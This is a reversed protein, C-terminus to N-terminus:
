GQYSAWDLHLDKGRSSVVLGVPIFGQQVALEAVERCLKNLRVKQEDLSKQKAAIAELGGVMQALASNLWSTSVIGAVMAIRWLKLARMMNALDAEIEKRLQRRCRREKLLEVEQPTM